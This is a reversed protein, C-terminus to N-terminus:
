PTVVPTEPTQSGNQPTTIGANNTTGSPTATDSVNITGVNIIKNAKDDYLIAMRTTPYLIVRYGVKAKTFFPQAKIQEADKVTAVTPEEGTPLEILKGLKTLLEKVEASPDNAFMVARTYQRYYYIGAGAGGLTLIILIIFSLIVLKKEM